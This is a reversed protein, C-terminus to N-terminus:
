LLSLENIVNQVQDELKNQDSNLIGDKVYEKILPLVEYKMKTRIEVNGDEGEKSTIFYSHGIWVEEPKFDSALCTSSKPLAGASIVEDFNFVFLESVKKFYSKALENKIPDITPLVELFAFRRRIAYDIHGVSRDATNMTGIIYLNPPVVMSRNGDVEYMSDVPEGRYELGYILEGLVSPLNARNIEDIILVYNKEAVKSKEEVSISKGKVFEKFLNLVRLFYSAHQRALGSVTSNAKIEKRSNVGSLFLTKIDSFLLRHGNPLNWNDGTYRVADDEVEYLYTTTGTLILKGNNNEIEDELHDRFLELYKDVEQEKSLQEPTKKSDKFNQWAMAAIEGFVKNISRYSVIGDTADAVIGRVFDDYSYAPHFQLLKVQKKRYSELVHFALQSMYDSKVKGESDKWNGIKIRDRIERFFVPYPKGTSKVLVRIDDGVISVVKISEDSDLSQVILGLYIFESIDEDSISDYSIIESSIEKALRTKGTGPPGQLIIQGKLNLLKVLKEMNFVGKMAGINKYLSSILSRNQNTANASLSARKRETNKNGNWKFVLPMFYKDDIPAGKAEIASKILRVLDHWHNNNELNHYYQASRGDSTIKQIYGTQANNALTKLFSIFELDTVEAMDAIVLKELDSEGSGQPWNHKDIDLWYVPEKFFGILKEKNDIGDLRDILKYYLKKTTFKKGKFFYNVIVVKQNNSIELDNTVDIEEIELNNFFDICDKFQKKDM